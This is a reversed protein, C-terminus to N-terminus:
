RTFPATGGDPILPPSTKPTGVGMQPVEENSPHDRLLPSTNPCVKFLPSGICIRHVLGVAPNMSTVPATQPARSMKRYLLQDM